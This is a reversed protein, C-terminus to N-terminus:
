GGPSASPLPSPEPRRRRLHRRGLQLRLLLALVVFGVQIVPSLWPGTLEPLVNRLGLGFFSAHTAGFNLAAGTLHEGLWWRPHIPGLRVLRWMSAGVVIGVTSLGAMFVGRPLSGATFSLALIGLGSLFLVTGVARYLPGTYRAPDRRQRISRWSLWVAAGTILTLYTLFVAMGVRGERARLAILPVTTVLLGVMSAVYIRGAGRHLTGGKRSLAAIWFTLLAPTGFITHVLVLKEYM